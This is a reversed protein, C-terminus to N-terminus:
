FDGLLRSHDGVLILLLVPLYILSAWLLRRASGVSPRRFFLVSFLLYGLGLLLSGCAAGRGVVGLQTPLLGVPILALAYGVAVFGATWDRGQDTIPIMKLGANAYDERYLWAIAMFHPFQWLFLIAALSFGALNLDGGAATWGLLPPLAGPIAGIVTNLYTQSKLPTYVGVYLILTLGALIATTLNVLTVLIVLGAFGSVLGFLLADRPALRGSPLPRDSTRLMHRDSHREIFQNLASSAAAVLTIGILAEGLRAFNWRSQQALLFGVVVSVLAMVAIKPKTLELYDQFRSWVLSRTSPSTNAITGAPNLTSSSM